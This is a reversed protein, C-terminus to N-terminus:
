RWERIDTNIVATCFDNVAQNGDVERYGKKKM